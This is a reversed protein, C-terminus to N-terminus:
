KKIVKDTESTGNAFVIRRISIGEAPEALRMGNLDYYEVAIVDSKVAEISEVGTTNTFEPYYEDVASLADANGAKIIDEVLSNIYVEVNTYIGKADVTYLNADDANDPDLGNALEWDDPMGDRDTDFNDPRSISTLVPFSATNPNEEGNPDNIFDLIGETNSIPYVKGNKDVYAEKGHYTVTGTRAEEMYRADVADRYLSAGCFNLVKDYVTQASQTTVIGADIPEDLQVCVYDKGDIDVYEVKEGFKHNPDPMYRVGKVTTLGGDYKVGSWDYNEPKSAAAVYNGDIYYRSCLGRLAENTSNGSSGVSVETVRTKNKTGPGAQYYNNVINIYGGGPGGYCGNGNGWNYLVNNRFDVREADVTNEYKTKDWGDWEYRAGNFRPARNQIHTLYNHHFSAEKGGWIGGYSHAGKSHGPNALGEGITCWQMTFNRNDYFSAVEDISWSFSCHDIIINKRRRGWTADAGDNVDKVQSRRSRIFRVIVNDCKGFYLTYYRLTIGGEPATQGAITTNSTVDLQSKLDIYGSVDFVITKPGSQAMAWRLSGEGSDNLNTVHVIKGGRGGTTFRGHGEAGPFAPAAADDAFLPTCLALAGALLLSKKM